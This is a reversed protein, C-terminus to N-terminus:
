PFGSHKYRSSPQSDPSTHGTSEKGPQTSTSTPRSLAADADGPFKHSISVSPDKRSM